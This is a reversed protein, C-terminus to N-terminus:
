LARTQHVHLDYVTDQSPRADTGALPEPADLERGAICADVFSGQDMYAGLAGPSQANEEPLNPLSATMAPCAAVLDAFTIPQPCFM